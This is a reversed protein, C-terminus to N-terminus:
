MLNGQFLQHKINCLETKSLNPWHNLSYCLQSLINPLVYWYKSLNNASTWGTNDQNFNSELNKLWLPLYKCLKFRYFSLILFFTVGSLNTLICIIKVIIWSMKLTIDKKPSTNKNPTECRSQDSMPLCDTVKHLSYKPSIMLPVSSEKNSLPLLRLDLSDTQLRTLIFCVM